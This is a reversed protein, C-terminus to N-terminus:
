KLVGGKVANYRAELASLLVENRAKSSAKVGERVEDLIMNMGAEDSTSVSFKHEITGFGSCVKCTAEEGACESCIVHVSLLWITADAALLWSMVRGYKNSIYAGESIIVTNM